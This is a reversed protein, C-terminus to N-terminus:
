PNWTPGVNAPAASLATAFDFHLTTLGTLETPLPPVGTGGNWFNNGIPVNTSGGVNYLYAQKSGDFDNSDIQGANIGQVGASIFAIAYYGGRFRNHDMKFSTGRLDAQISPVMQNFSCNQVIPASGNNLFLYSIGNMSNATAHLNYLKPACYSISFGGNSNGSTLNTILANQLLTGSGDVPNFNVAGDFWFAFGENNALSGGLKHATFNAHAQPTALVRLLGKVWLRGAAGTGQELDVTAGDVVYLKTNTDVVLNGGNVVVSGEAVYPSAATTTTFGAASLVPIRTGHVNKVTVSRSSEQTGVASVQYQYVVGDGAPSAIPDDYNTSTLTSANLKTWNVGDISRYLNYGTLGGGSSPSWSIRINGLSGVSGLGTPVSPSTSQPTPAPTSSGGGGCAFSLALLAPVSFSFTPHIRM